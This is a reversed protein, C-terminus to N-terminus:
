GALNDMVQSRWQIALRQAEQIDLGLLYIKKPKKPHIILLASSNGVPIEKILADGPQFEHLDLSLMNERFFTMVHSVQFRSWGYFVEVAHYMDGKAKKFYDLLIKKKEEIDVILRGPIEPLSPAPDEDCISYDNREKVWMAFKTPENEIVNLEEDFNIEPGNEVKVRSQIYTLLEKSSDIEGKEAKLYALYFYTYFYGEETHLVYGEMETPILTEYQEQAKTFYCEATELFGHKLYTSGMYYYTEPCFHLREILFNGASEVEAPTVCKDLNHNISFSYSSATDEIWYVRETEDPENLNECGLSVEQWNLKWDLTQEQMSSWDGRIKLVKRSEIIRLFNEAQGLTWIPTAGLLEVPAPLNDGNSRFAALQRQSWGIISAFEKIGIRQTLRNFQENYVYHLDDRVHEKHVLNPAKLLLELLKRTYETWSVWLETKLIDNYEELIEYLKGISSGHVVRFIQGDLRTIEALKSLDMRNKISEALNPLAEASNKKANAAWARVSLEHKIYAFYTGLDNFEKYQTTPYGTTMKEM